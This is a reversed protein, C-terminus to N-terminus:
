CMEYVELTDDSLQLIKCGACSLKDLLCTLNSYIVPSMSIYSRTIAAALMYTGAEIRDPMISYESGYLRRRGSIYLTDTGAGEVAAGCNTLFGALDIIEPEQM